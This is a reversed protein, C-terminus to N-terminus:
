GDQRIKPAGRFGSCLLGGQLIEDREVVILKGFAQGFLDYEEMLARRHAEQSCGCSITDGNKLAFHRIYKKNKWLRM